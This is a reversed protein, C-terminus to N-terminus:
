LVFTKIPKIASGDPYEAVEGIAFFDGTQTQIRLRTGVPFATRIKAQYIECGSRFLREYFAPLRVAELNSFLSETPILAQLREEESMAQLADPTYSQEIAYTGCLRRELTAM